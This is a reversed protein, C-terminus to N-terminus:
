HWAGVALGWGLYERAGDIVGGVRWYTQADFAGFMSWRFLRLDFGFTGHLRTAGERFRTPELYTGARLQVWGGEPEVEIGLRPTWVASEGSRDTVQQLFSQVGVADRM